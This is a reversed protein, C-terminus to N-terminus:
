FMALMYELWFSYPVLSILLRNQIDIKVAQTEGQETHVFLKDDL